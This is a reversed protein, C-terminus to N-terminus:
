TDPTGTAVLWADVERARKSFLDLIAQAIGAIEGVHRGPRWEVGLSATLEDRFVAQFIEGAARAHRYLDSGHLASWRRDTGEAMNAVLVHWHLYPDGARSTRHRFAAAVVGSTRLQRPGVDTKDAHAALWAQNHSGRRVRIAERE